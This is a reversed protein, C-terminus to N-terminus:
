TKKRTGSFGKNVDQLTALYEGTVLPRARCGRQVMLHGYQPIVMLWGAATGKLKSANRIAAERDSFNRFRVVVTRHHSSAAAAAPGVRHARELNVSPLQLKDELIKSVNVATQEWTEGVPQEKLGSIRLNNRRTYDEQYNLRHNLEAVRSQLEEVAVQKEKNLKQLVKENNKLDLIEAQSFELSKTLDTMKGEVLRIREKWQEVVLELASRFTREQSELLVKVADLDM